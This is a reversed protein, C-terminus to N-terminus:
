IEEQMLDEQVPAGVGAVAPQASAQLIGEVRARTPDNAAAVAAAMAAADPRQARKQRKGAKAAAEEAYAEGFAERV